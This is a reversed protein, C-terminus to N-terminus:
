SRVSAHADLQDAIMRATHDHNIFIQVTETDKTLGLFEIADRIPDLLHSNPNNKLLPGGGCYEWDEPFLVPLWGIACAEYPVTKGDEFNAWVRINFNAKPLNRLFKTFKALRLKQEDTM